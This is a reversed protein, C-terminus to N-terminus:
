RSLALMSQISARCIPCAYRLRPVRGHARDHARSKQVSDRVRVACELCLAHTCPLLVTTPALTMCIPCETADSGLDPDALMPATSADAASEDPHAGHEQHASMGFLQHLQMAFGSIYISQAGNRLRWSDDRPEAFFRMTQANPEALAQGDEDLAEIILALEIPGDDLDNAWAGDLVLPLVVRMELGHVVDCSSLCWGVPHPAGGSSRVPPAGVAGTRHAGVVYLDLRARPAACDCAIALTHTPGPLQLATRTAPDLSLTPAALATAPAPTADPAGGLTATSRHLHVYLDLSSVRQASEREIWTEITSTSLPAHIVPPQEAFHDGVDPGYLRVLEEHTEPATEVAENQPPAGGPIGSSRNGPQGPHNPSSLGWGRLDMALTARPSLM